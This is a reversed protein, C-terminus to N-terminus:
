VVKPRGNIRKHIPAGALCQRTEGGLVSIQTQHNFGRGCYIADPFNTGPKPYRSLRSRSKLHGQLSLTSGAKRSAFQQGKLACHCPDCRPVQSSHGSKGRAAMGSKSKLGLLAPPPPDVCAKTRASNLGWSCGLTAGWFAGVPHGWNLCM